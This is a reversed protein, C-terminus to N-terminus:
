SRRELTVLIDRLAEAFAAPQEYAAWHGADEVVRAVLDPHSERLVDFRAAVSPAAIQDFEGWIAGLPVPVLPLLRRIDDTGAFARSRFRARAVNEIQLHVALPDIRGRNAIMLIALNARHVEAREAPTMRPHERAFEFRRHPLGVAACGSLTLSRIRRGLSAAMATGVHAGFSFGVVAPRVTPSFLTRVAEAMVEGCTAPVHPQPPMASDGLGPLDPVWLEYGASLEDIIKIWHNWSGTGGHLLLVPPGSGWVRWVVHGAGCPTAERRCAAEFHAVVDSPAASWLGATQAM